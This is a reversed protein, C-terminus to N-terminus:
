GAVVGSTQYTKGSWSVTVTVKLLKTDTASNSNTYSASSSTPTVPPQQLYQKTVTYSLGEPVLSDQSNTVSSSTISGSSDPAGNGSTAESPFSTRVTDYPLSKAQELKANALSRAEDYNDSTTASKLGMDFMSFMPIIAITLLTIAVMVEILTYGAENNLRKIM